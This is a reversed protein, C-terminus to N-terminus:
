LSRLRDVAVARDAEDPEVISVFLEELNRHRARLEDLMGEAAVQGRNIIIVRDCTMEVEPLIHTSLLM